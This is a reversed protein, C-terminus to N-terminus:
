GGCGGGPVSYQVFGYVPTVFKITVGAAAYLWDIDDAQEELELMMRHHIIVTSQKSSLITINHNEAHTSSQGFV